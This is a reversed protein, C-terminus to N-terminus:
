AHRSRALSRDFRVRGAHRTKEHARPKHTTPPTRSHRNGPRFPVAMREFDLAPLITALIAFIGWFGSKGWQRANWLICRIGRFLQGTIDGFFWLEGMKGTTPLARPTCMPTGEQETNENGVVRHGELRQVTTNNKKKIVTYPYTPHHTAFVDFVLSSAPTSGPTSAVVSCRFLLVRPCHNVVQRTGPM